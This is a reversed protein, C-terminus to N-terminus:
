HALDHDYNLTNILAFYNKALKYSKKFNTGIISILFFIQKM